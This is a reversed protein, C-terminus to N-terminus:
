RKSPCSWRGQNLDRPRAAWWNLSNRPPLSRLRWTWTRLQVQCTPPRGWWPRRSRRTSTRRSRSTPAASGPPKNRPPRKSCPLAFGCRGWSPKLGGRKPLGNPRPRPWPRERRGTLRRHPERGAKDPHHDLGGHPGHIRELPGKQYSGPHKHVERRIQGADRSKKDAAVAAIPQQELEEARELALEQAKAARASSPQVDPNIIAKHDKVIRRAKDAEAKRAHAEATFQGAHSLDKAPRGRGKKTPGEDSESSSSIYYAPSRRSHARKKGRGVSEADSDVDMNIPTVVSTPSPPLSPRGKNGLGSPGPTSSPESRTGDSGCSDPKVGKSCAPGPRSGTPRTKGGKPLFDELTVQLRRTEKKPPNGQSSSPSFLELGGAGM